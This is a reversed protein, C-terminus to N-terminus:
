ENAERPRDDLTHYPNQAVRWVEIHGDDGASWCLVDGDQLGLEQVVKRPITAVMQGGQMLWGRTNTTGMDVYIACVEKSTDARSSM